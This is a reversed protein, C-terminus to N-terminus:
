ATTRDKRIVAIGSVATTVVGTKIVEIDFPHPGFESDSVLLAFATNAATLAVTITTSSAITVAVQMLEADTTRHKITLQGSSYSTYDTAVTFVISAYTDNRTLNLITAGNASSVVTQAAATGILDTKAQITDLTTSDTWSVYSLALTAGRERLEYTVASAPATGTFRGTTGVEIATIRYTAYDGDSWTVYAAGNWVSGSSNYAFFDHTTGSQGYGIM